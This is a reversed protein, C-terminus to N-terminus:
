GADFRSPFLAVEPAFDTLLIAFPTSDKGIQHPIHLAASRRPHPRPRHRDRGQARFAALAADKTAPMYRDGVHHGPDHRSRDALIALETPRSRKRFM